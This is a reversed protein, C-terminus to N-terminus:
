GRVIRSADRAAPEQASPGAQYTRWGDDPTEVLEGGPWRGDEVMDRICNRLADIVRATAPMVPADSAVALMRYSYLDRIPIARLEGREIAERAMVATHITPAVGAVVLPLSAGATNVEAVVNLNLGAKVMAENVIG